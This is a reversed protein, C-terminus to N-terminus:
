PASVFPGVGFLFDAVPSDSTPCIAGAPWPLATVVRDVGLAALQHPVGDGSEIHGSGMIGIVLPAQKRSRAAAITEAMARDWFTQARVFREFRAEDAGAGMAPHRGFWARLRDRYAPSAPAPEGVGEREAVSINAFGTAAARRNTERDVNLALMPLSRSRALLFLPMYLGPDFGWIRPWDVAALFSAEDLQGASWRDLVPQVRWPFMEFGLAIDPRRGALATATDLQWRHHVADDHTEGLLVVARSALEDIVDDRIRRRRVDFWAGSAVSGELQSTPHDASV